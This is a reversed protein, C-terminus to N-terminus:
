AHTKIARSYGVHRVHARLVVKRGAGVDVAPALYFHGNSRLWGRTLWAWRGKRRVEIIVTRPGLHRRGKVWGYVPIV